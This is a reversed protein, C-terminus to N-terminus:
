SNGMGSQRKTPAGEKRKQPDLVRNQAVRRFPHGDYGAKPTGKHSERESRAEPSIFQLGKRAKYVCEKSQETESKEPWALGGQQSSM